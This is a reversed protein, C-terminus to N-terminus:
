YLLKEGQPINYCFHLLNMLEGLSCAKSATCVAATCAMSANSFAVSLILSIFYIGSTSIGRICSYLEQKLSSISMWLLGPELESCSASGGRLQLVFDLFDLPVVLLVGM